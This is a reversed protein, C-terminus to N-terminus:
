RFLKDPLIELTWADELDPSTQLIEDLIRNAEETQGSVAAANAKRM